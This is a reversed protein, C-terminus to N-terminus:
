FITFIKPVIFCKMETFSLNKISLKFTMIAPLPLTFKFHPILIVIVATRGEFAPYM